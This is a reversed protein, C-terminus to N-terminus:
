ISSVHKSKLFKDRYSAAIHHSTLRPSSGGLPERLTSKSPDDVSSPLRGRRRLVPVVHKVIDQFTGPTIVYALNFGDIDGVCMWEEMQDAISEGSGCVTPGAGGMSIYEAVKKKATWPQGDPSPIRSWQDMLSHINDNAIHQLPTDEDIMVTDTGTGNSASQSDCFFLLNVGVWGGYLALYLVTAHRTKKNSHSSQILSRCCM